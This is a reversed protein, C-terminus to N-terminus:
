SQRCWTLRCSGRSDRQRATAGARSIARRAGSCRTHSSVVTNADPALHMEDRPAAGIRTRFSRDIGSRAKGRNRSLRDSPCEGGYETNLAVSPTALAYMLRVVNDRREIQDEDGPRFHFAIEVLRQTEHGSDKTLALQQCTHNDVILINVYILPHGRCVATSCEGPAVPCAAPLLVVSAKSSVPSLAHIRGHM